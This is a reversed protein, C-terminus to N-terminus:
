DICINTVHFCTRHWASILASTCIHIMSTFFTWYALYACPWLPGSITFRPSSDFPWTVSLTLRKTIIIAFSSLFMAVTSYLKFNFMKIKKRSIEVAWQDYKYPCISDVISIWQVGTNTHVNGQKTLLFLIARYYRTDIAITNHEVICWVIPLLVANWQGLPPRM